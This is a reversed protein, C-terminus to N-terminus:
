NRVTALETIMEPISPPEPYGGQLWLRRNLAPDLTSLTRDISRATTVDEIALDDRGWAAAILRVLEAKNVVDSAVLHRTGALRDGARVIGAAVRAFALTTVGNWRHNTFGNLKAGRPHSLVWELLSTSSGIEPGIISCRLNLVNDRPVEGLSKTQGYVDTADHEKAEDYRGSSGSYVCDTAIQVVHLGREEAAAALKYPFAANVEIARLRDAAVDDRMLHRIVGVCNIIYDGPALGDLATAVSDRQVDFRRVVADSRVSDLHRATAITEIGSRRFEQLLTSGLMGTSGVVLARSPMREM